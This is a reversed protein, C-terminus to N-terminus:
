EDEEPDSLGTVEGFVVLALPFNVRKWKPIKLWTGNQSRAARVIAFYDYTLLGHLYIRREVEKTKLSELLDDGPTGEMTYIKLSYTGEEPPTVRAIASHGGKIKKIWEQPITAHVSIFNGCRGGDERFFYKGKDRRVFLKREGMCSAATAPKISPLGQHFKLFAQFDLGEEGSTPKIALAPHVEFFHNPNAPNANGAAHETFLRPFGTVECEKGMVTRDFLEPWVKNRLDAESTQPTGAPWEKCLNPPEVVAGSPFLQGTLPKAAVHIECDKGITHVKSTRHELRLKIKFNISDQKALDKLFAESMSFDPVDDANQGSLPAAVFTFLAILPVASFTRALWRVQTDLLPTKM